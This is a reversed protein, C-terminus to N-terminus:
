KKFADGNQYELMAMMSEKSLPAGGEMARAAKQIWPHQQARAATVRKKPKKVLCREIFDRCLPSVGAWKQQPNPSDNLFPARLASRLRASCANTRVSCRGRDLDPRPAVHRAGVVGCPHFFVSRGNAGGAFVVYLSARPNDCMHLLMFSYLLM